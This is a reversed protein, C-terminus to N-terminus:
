RWCGPSNKSNVYARALKDSMGWTTLHCLTVKGMNTKDRKYVTMPDKHDAHHMRLVEYPGKPDVKKWGRSECFATFRELHSVSLTCRSRSM